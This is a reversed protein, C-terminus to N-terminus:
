VVLGAQGSGGVERWLGMDKMVRDWHDLPADSDGVCEERLAYNSAVVRMATEPSWLMGLVYLRKVARGCASLAKRAGAFQQLTLGKGNQLAHMAPLAALIAASVQDSMEDYTIRRMAEVEELTVSHPLSCAALHLGLLDFGLGYGPDHAKRQM